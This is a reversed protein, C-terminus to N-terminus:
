SGQLKGIAIVNSSDDIPVAILVHEVQSDTLGSKVMIFRHSKLDTGHPKANTVSSTIPDVLFLNQESIMM